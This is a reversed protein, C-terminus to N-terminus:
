SWKQKTEYTDESCVTTVSPIKNGGTRQRYVAISSRKSLYSEPPHRCDESIYLSWRTSTGLWRFATSHPCTQHRAQKSMEALWCSRMRQVECQLPGTRGGYFDENKMWATMRATATITIGIFNTPGLVATNPIFELRVGSDRDSSGTNFQRVTHAAEADNDIFTKWHSFVDVTHRLEHQKWMLAKRCIRRERVSSTALVTALHM